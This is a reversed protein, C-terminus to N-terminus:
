HTHYPVIPVNAYSEVKNQERGVCVEVVLYDLSVEVVLCILSVEVVLVVLYNLSNLM